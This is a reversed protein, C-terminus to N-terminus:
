QKNPAVINQSAMDLDFRGGIPHCLQFTASIPMDESLHYEKIYDAFQCIVVTPFYRSFRPQSTGLNIHTRVTGLNSISRLIPEFGIDAL